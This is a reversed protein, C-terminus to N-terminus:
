LVIRGAECVGVEYVVFLYLTRHHYELWLQTMASRLSHQTRIVYLLHSQKNVQSGNQLHLTM